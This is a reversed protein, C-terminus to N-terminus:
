LLWMCIKGVGNPGIIVNIGKQFEIEFNKLSKFGDVKLKEIM